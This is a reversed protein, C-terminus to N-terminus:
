WKGNRMKFYALWVQKRGSKNLAFTPSEFFMARRLSEKRAINKNYGRRVGDNVGCQAWGQAVPIKEDTASMRFINCTSEGIRGFRDYTWNIVLRDGHM